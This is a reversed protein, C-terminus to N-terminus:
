LPKCNLGIEAIDRMTHKIAWIVSDIVLKFQPPPLELLAVSLTKDILKPCSLLGDRYTGPFCSIDIARLMRFFGGRHEPYEAFDKNIMDLTPEFVADLIPAIQPNLRSQMMAFTSPDTMRIGQVFMPVFM